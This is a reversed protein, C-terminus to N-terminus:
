RCREVDVARRHFDLGAVPHFDSIRRWATWKRHPRAAGLSGGVRGAMASAESRGAFDKETLGEASHTVYTFTVRKYNVLIDPHHDAAEAAFGLRVVFSVAQPFGAFTFEPPAGTRSPGAPLEALRKRAENEDITLIKEMRCAYREIGPFRDM